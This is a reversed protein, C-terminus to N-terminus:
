GALEDKDVSKTIKENCKAPALEINDEILKITVTNIKGKFEENENKWYGKNIIDWIVTAKKNNIEKGTNAAAIVISRKSRLKM